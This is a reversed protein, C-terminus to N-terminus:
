RKSLMVRLDRLKQILVIDAWDNSSLSTWRVPDRRYIEWLNYIRRCALMRDIEGVVQDRLGGANPLVGVREFLFQYELEPPSPMEGEYYAVVELM